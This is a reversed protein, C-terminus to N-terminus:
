FKCSPSKIEVVEVEQLSPQKNFQVRLKELLSSIMRSQAGELLLQIM